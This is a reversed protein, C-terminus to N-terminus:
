PCLAACRRWRSSAWLNGEVVIPAAVMSAADNRRLAEAAPGPAHQWARRQSRAARGTRQVKASALFDELPWRTGVSIAQIGQSLGVFVLGSRDPDFRAIGAEAEFLRSVEDSVATFIDAPSVGRAVLTAVRGLAAQEDAIRRFEAYLQVNDLSVALQGAILKVADLGGTTFAGRILRNELLLMARFAGRSLIPVALLSCCDVGAFYPDRGFRDDQTADVVVLPEQTRRAYRLVSTPV